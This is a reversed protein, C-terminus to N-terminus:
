SARGRWVSLWVGGLKGRHFRAKASRLSEHSIEIATTCFGSFWRPLSLPTRAVNSSYPRFRTSPSM